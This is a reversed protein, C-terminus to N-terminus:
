TSLQSKLLFLSSYEPYLSHTLDELDFIADKYSEDINPYVSISTKFEEISDLEFPTLLISEDFEKKQKRLKKRM